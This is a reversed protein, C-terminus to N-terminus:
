KQKNQTWKQHRLTRKSILFNNVRKREENGAKGRPKHPCCKLKLRWVEHDEM